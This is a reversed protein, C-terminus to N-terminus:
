TQDLARKVIERISVPTHDVTGEQQVEDAILRNKKDLFLIRFQEKDEFAMAMEKQLAGNVVRPVPSANCPQGSSSLPRSIQPICM